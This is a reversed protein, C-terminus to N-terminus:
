TKFGPLDPRLLSRLTLRAVKLAPGRAPDFVILTVGRGGFLGPLASVTDNLLARRTKTAASLHALPDM